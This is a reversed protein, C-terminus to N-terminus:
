RGFRPDQVNGAIRESAQRAISALAPDGHTALADVEAQLAQADTGRRLAVTLAVLGVSRAAADLPAAPVARLQSSIADHAGAGLAVLLDIAHARDASELSPLAAFVARALDPAGRRDRGKAELFADRDEGQKHRLNRVIEFALGAGKAVAAAPPRDPRPADAGEASVPGVPRPPAAEGCAALAWALLAIFNRLRPM